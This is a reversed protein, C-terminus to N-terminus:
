DKKYDYNDGEQAVFLMNSRLTTFRGHESQELLRKNYDLKKRNKKTILGDKVYFDIFLNENHIFTQDVDMIDLNSNDNVYGVTTIKKLIEGSFKNYLIKNVIVIAKPRNAEFHAMGKLFEEYEDSM